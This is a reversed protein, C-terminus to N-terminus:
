DIKMCKELETLCYDLGHLYGKIHKENDDNCLKSKYLSDWNEYQELISKCAKLLKLEDIKVM